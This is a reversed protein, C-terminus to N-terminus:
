LIPEKQIMEPDCIRSIASLFVAYLSSQRYTNTAHILTNTQFFSPVRVRSRQKNQKNADCHRFFKDSMYKVQADIGEGRMGLIISFLYSFYLM